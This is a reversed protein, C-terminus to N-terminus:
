KASLVLAYKKASLDAADLQQIQDAVTITAEFSGSANCTLSRPNPPTLTRAGLHPKTPGCMAWRM